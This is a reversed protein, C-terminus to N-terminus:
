CSLVVNKMKKSIHLGGDAAVLTVLENKAVAWAFETANTDPHEAHIWRCQEYLIAAKEANGIRQIKNTLLKSSVEDCYHFQWNYFKTKMEETIFPNPFKKKKEDLYALIKRTMDERLAILQTMIDLKCQKLKEEIGPPLKIGGHVIKENLKQLKDNMISYMEGLVSKSQYVEQNGSKKHQKWHPIQALEEKLEM